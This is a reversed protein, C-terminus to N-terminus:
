YSVRRKKCTKLAKQSLELDDTRFYHCESAYQLYDIPKLVENTQNDRLVVEGNEVSYAVSHGGGNQWWLLFQGRAGEGQKLIDKTIGDSWEGYTLAGDNYYGAQVEPLEFSKKLEPNKYWSLIEAENNMTQPTVGNAEVEYGRQRMDYTSTCYACNNSFAFKFPSYLPNTAATDENKTYEKIKKPVESLKKFVQVDYKKSDAIYSLDKMKEKMLAHGKDAFNRVDKLKSEVKKSKFKSGIDKLKNLIPNAGNANTFNTRGINSKHKDRKMNHMDLSTIGTDKSSPDDGKLFAQYEAQSYFYRYTKGIKKRAIYKFGNMYM